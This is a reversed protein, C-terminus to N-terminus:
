CSLKDVPPDRLRSLPCDVALIRKITCTEDQLVPTVRFLLPRKKTTKRKEGSLILIASFNVFTMRPWREDNPRKTIGTPKGQGYQTTILVHSVVITEAYNALM